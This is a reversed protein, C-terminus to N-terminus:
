AVDDCRQQNELFHGLAIYAPSDSLGITWRFGDLVGNLAGNFIRRSNGILTENIDM